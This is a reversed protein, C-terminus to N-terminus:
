CVLSTSQSATLPPSSPSRVLGLLQVVRVWVRVCVCSYVRQLGAKTPDTTCKSNNNNRQIPKNRSCLKNALNCSLLSSVSLEHICTRVCSGVCMCVCVCVPLRKWVCVCVSGCLKRQTPAEDFICFQVTEARFGKHQDCDSHHVLRSQSLSLVTLTM